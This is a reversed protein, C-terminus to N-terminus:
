SPRASVWLLGVLVALGLALLLKDAFDVGDIGMKPELSGEYGVGAVAMSLSSWGDQTPANNGNVANAHVTFDTRSNNDIPSTWLFSWSRQGAGAETHTWGGDIEQGLSTNMSLTGNSILIRFGGAYAGDDPVSPNSVSLTLVYSTNGEYVDPLGDLALTTQAVPAHCLCGENAEQGVGTPVSVAMGPAALVFLLLMLAGRRHSGM